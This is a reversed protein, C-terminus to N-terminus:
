KLKWINEGSDYLKYYNDKKKKLRELKKCWYNKPKSLKQKVFGLNGYIKGNFLRFDTSTTINDFKYNKKFHNFLKSVGGIVTYNLKTCTRIIEFDNKKKKLCMLCVLEDNYHLGINVDSKAYGDIHNSELFNKVVLIDVSKVVCKRAYIKNNKNLRNSIISKVIDQKFIWEDEWIHLLDIGKELCRLSKDLHYNKDKYKESHWYLGNFEIALNYEPIYIDLEKGELIKRDNEVISINLSKLFKVLFEQKQSFSRNEIKPQCKTCIVNKYLIRDYLMNKEINFFESCIHHKIVFFDDSYSEIIYMEKDIKESYRELTKRFKSKRVKEKVIDTQSSHKNGYKELYTEESKNRITESQISYEVGYKELNTKKIKDKVGDNQFPNDVGFKKYVTERKKLKVYESKSPNDVGYKNINTKISKIHKCKTCFYKDVLGNTSKYYDKYSISKDLFCNDCSVEVLGNYGYSVDKIDVEIVDGIFFVYGINRYYTINKTSGKIKLFKNKIM